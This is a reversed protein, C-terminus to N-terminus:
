SRLLRLWIFLRGRHNGGQRKSELECQIRTIGVHQRRVSFRVSGDLREM